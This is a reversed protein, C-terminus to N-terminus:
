IRKLVEKSAQHIYRVTKRAFADVEAHNTRYNPIIDLDDVSKSLGYALENFLPVVLGYNQEIFTRHSLAMAIVVDQSELIEPTLLRPVHSRADVGQKTLEDLISTMSWFGSFAPNRAAAEVLEQLTRGGKEGHTGASSVVVGSVSQQAAYNALCYHASVSRFMNGTCVFLVKKDPM